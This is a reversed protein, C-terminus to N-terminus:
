PVTQAQNIPGNMSAQSFTYGSSSAALRPLKEATKGGMQALGADARDAFDEIGLSGIPRAAAHGLGPAHGFHQAAPHLGHRGVLDDPGFLGDLAQGWRSDRLVSRLMDRITQGDLEVVMSRWLMPNPSVPGRGHDSAICLLFKVFRRQASWDRNLRPRSDSKNPGQRTSSLRLPRAIMARVKPLQQPM